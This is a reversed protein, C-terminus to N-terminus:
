SGGRPNNALARGRAIAAEIAQDVLAHFDGARFQELAAATTGGKSTVSDRLASLETSEACMAGAGRLTARALQTATALPLGHRTAADVMAEALLFFYAPGSGSVATVVDMLPESDVWVVVGATSLLATALARDQPTVDPEAFLATAGAGLSAPRNPMARILRASAGCSERLAEITVGAAISIILPAHTILSAKLPVLAAALDQPKVALILVDLPSPLQAASDVTHIGLAAQLASRQTASVEAVVLQNAPLGAQLLAAALAQGMHGGGLFGVYPDQLGM